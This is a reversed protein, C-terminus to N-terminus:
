FHGNYSNQTMEVGRANTGGNLGEHFSMINVSQGLYQYDKEALQMMRDKMTFYDHYAKFQIRDDGGWPHIQNIYEPSWIDDPSVGSSDDDQANTTISGTLMPVLM